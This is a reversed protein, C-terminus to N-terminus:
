AGEDDRGRRDWLARRGSQRDVAELLRGGEAGSRWEDCRRGPEVADAQRDRLHVPQRPGRVRRRDGGEPSRRRGVPVSRVARWPHDPHLFRRVRRLEAGGRARNKAQVPGRDREGARHFERRGRCPDRGGRGAGCDVDSAGWVGRCAGDAERIIEGQEDFRAFATKGVTAERRLAGPPVRWGNYATTCLAGEAM